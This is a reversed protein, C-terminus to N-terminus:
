TQQPLTRFSHPLLRTRFLFCGSPFSGNFVSGTENERRIFIYIIRSSTQKTIWALCFCKCILLQNFLIFFAILLFFIKLIHYEFFHSWLLVLSSPSVQSPSTSGLEKPPSEPVPASSSQAQKRHSNM